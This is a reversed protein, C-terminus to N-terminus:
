KLKSLVDQERFKLQYNLWAGFVKQVTSIAILALILPLLTEIVFKVDAAAEPSLYKAAFYLILAVIATIITTWLEKTLNM